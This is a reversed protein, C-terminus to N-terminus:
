LFFLGSCGCSGTPHPLFCMEITKKRKWAIGNTQQKAPTVPTMLSNLGDFSSRQRRRKGGLEWPGVRMGVKLKFAVKDVSSSSMMRCIVIGMSVMYVHFSASAM